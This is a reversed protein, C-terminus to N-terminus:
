FRMGTNEMKRIKAINKVDSFNPNKSKIEDIISKNWSYIELSIQWNNFIILDIRFPAPDNLNTHSIPINPLLLISGIHTNPWKVFYECWALHNQVITIRPSKTFFNFKLIYFLVRFSSAMPYINSSIIASSMVTISTKWFVILLAHFLSKPVNWININHCYHSLTSFISEGTIITSM